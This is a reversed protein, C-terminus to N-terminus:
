NKLTTLFEPKHMLFGQGIQCGIEIMTEKQEETEIGEGIMEM